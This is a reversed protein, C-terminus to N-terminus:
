RAEGKNSYFIGTKARFASVDNLMRNTLSSSALRPPSLLLLIGDPVRLTRSRRPPHCKTTDEDALSSAFTRASM